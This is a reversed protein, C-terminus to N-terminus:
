RDELETFLIRIGGTALATAPGFFAGAEPTAVAASAAAYDNFHLDLVRYAPTPSGDEKPWVRAGQVLTVGPLKRALDLVEGYGAEFAAPDEPNDYILTVNTDM